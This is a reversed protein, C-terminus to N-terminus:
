GVRRILTIGDRLPVLVQEVRPDAAVWANFEAIAAGNPSREGAHWPEGQLLTNDVCLTGGPALLGHDLVADVYGRYGAKDADVFVLDFGPEGAGDDGAGGLGGAGGGGVAAGASALETLTQAAPGVRVEIKAGAPSADFGAQAFAAVDPDLECAVVRGDEGLAEAIALASYGTFMGIELVRRAGTMAVLFKLLQGEVHGSLMEAELTGDGWAHAQTRAALAALAPSEPTTCAATYPELGGALESAGRLEALLEAIDEGAGDPGERDIVEALGVARELRAALIGVPTVPRLGSREPSLEPM